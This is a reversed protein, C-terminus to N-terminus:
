QMPLYTNNQSLPDKLKRNNDQEAELSHRLVRTNSVNNRGEFEKDFELGLVETGNGGNEMEIFYRQYSNLHQDRSARRSLDKKRKGNENKKKTKTMKRIQICIRFARQSDMLGFSRCAPWSAGVVSGNYNRMMREMSVNFVKSEVKADWPNSLEQGHYTVLSLLPFCQIMGLHDKSNNSPWQNVNQMTWGYDPIKHAKAVLINFRVKLYGNGSWDHANIWHSQMLILVDLPDNDELSYLRRTRHVTVFSPENM